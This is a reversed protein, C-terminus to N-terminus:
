HGIRTRAPGRGRTRLKASLMRRGALWRFLHGGSRGLVHGLGDEHRLAPEHWEMPLCCKGVERLVVGVIVGYVLRLETRGVQAGDGLLEHESHRLQRERHM